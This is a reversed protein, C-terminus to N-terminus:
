AQLGIENGSERWATLRFEVKGPMEKLFAILANAKMRAAEDNTDPIMIRCYHAGNIAVNLEYRPMKM